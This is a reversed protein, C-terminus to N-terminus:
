AALPSSYGPTTTSSVTRIQLLNPVATLRRPIFQLSSTCTIPRSGDDGSQYLSGVANATPEKDTTWSTNSFYYIYERAPIASLQQQGSFVTYGTVLLAVVSASLIMLGTRFWESKISTVGVIVLYGVASIFQMLLGLMIGKSM